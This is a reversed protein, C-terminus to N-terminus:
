QIERVTIQDKDGLKWYDGSIKLRDGLKVTRFQEPHNLNSHSITVFYLHGDGTEVTATYGDKGQNVDTVIGEVHRTESPPVAEKGITDEKPMRAKVIEGSETITSKKHSECSAFAIVASLLALNQIHYKM